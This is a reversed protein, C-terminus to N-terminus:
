EIQVSSAITFYAAAHNHHRIGLEGREGDADDYTFTCREHAEGIENREGGFNGCRRASPTPLPNRGARINVEFTYAEGRFCTIRGM